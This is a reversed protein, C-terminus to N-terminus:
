ADTSKNRHIVRLDDTIRGLAQRMARDRAAAEEPVGSYDPARALLGRLLHPAADAHPGPPPLRLADGREVQLPLRVLAAQAADERATVRVFSRECRAALVEDAVVGRDTITGGTSQLSAFLGQLRGPTVTSGM